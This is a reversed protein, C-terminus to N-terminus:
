VVSARPLTFYNFETKDNMLHNQPTTQIRVAEAIQRKMADNHYVGVIDMRFRIDRHRGQHKEKIHKWMVSNIRKKELDDLHEAGRIYGTRSTQGHYIKEDDKDECECCYIDYNVGISRCSGSGQSTCPLCDFRGCNKSKFPDSKQLIRKLSVGAKEVIKIPLEARKIEQNYLNKLESNPTYPIFMVSKNGGRKYWNQKKTKREQERALTNWTKHRYLPRNGLREAERLKDYAKLASNMIEARFKQDYGSYQMRASYDSLHSAVVEWPLDRSCNLMIRLADQTLITRKSSWAM